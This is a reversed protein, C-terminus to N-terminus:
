KAVREPSYVETIDVGAILKGVVTSPKDIEKKETMSYEQQDMDTDDGARSSQSTTAMPGSQLEAEMGGEKRRAKEPSQDKTGDKSSRKERPVKDM